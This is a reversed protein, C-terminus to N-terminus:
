SLVGYLAAYLASMNLHGYVALHFLGNVRVAVAPLMVVLMMLLM